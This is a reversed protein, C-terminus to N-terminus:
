SACTREPATARLRTRLPAQGSRLRLTSPNDFPSPSQPFNGLMQPSTIRCSNSTCLILLRTPTATHHGTRMPLNVAASGAIALGGAAPLRGQAMGQAFDFPYGFPPSRGLFGRGKVGYLGEGCASLPRGCSPPSTIGGYDKDGGYGVGGPPSNLTYTSGPMGVM